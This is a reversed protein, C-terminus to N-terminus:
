PTMNESTKWVSAIIILLIKINKIQIAKTMVSRVNREAGSCWEDEGDTIKIACVFIIMSYFAKIQYGICFFDPQFSGTCFLIYWVIRQRNLLKQRRMYLQVLM